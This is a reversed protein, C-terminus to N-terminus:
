KKEAKEVAANGMVLAEWPQGSRSPFFKADRGILVAFLTDIAEHQAKCAALLDQVAEPNIGECAKVCKKMRFQGMREADRKASIRHYNATRRAQVAKPDHVACYLQGDVMVKAAFSCTHGRFTGGRVHQSCQGLADKM